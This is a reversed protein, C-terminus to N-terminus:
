AGEALIQYFRAQDEPSLQDFDHSEDEKQSLFLTVAAKFVQYEPSETDFTPEWSDGREREKEWLDDIQTILKMKLEVLQKYRAMHPPSGKGAKEAAVKMIQEVEALNRYVLYLAEPWPTEMTACLHEISERASLTNELPIFKFITEWGENRYLLNAALQRDQLSLTEILTPRPM